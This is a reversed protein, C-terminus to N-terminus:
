KAESEPHHHNTSRVARQVIRYTVSGAAIARGSDRGAVTISSVYVGDSDWSTIAEALVDEGRTGVDFCLHMGITAARRAPDFGDISWAAAGGACDVLAAIAGEHITGDDGLIADALPLLSVAHGRGLQASAVALRRTFPSGSKRKVFSEAPVPTVKASPRTTADHASASSRNTGRRTGSTAGGSRHAIMGRAIPRDASSVLVDVFTIDRGRRLVRAEAVVDERVAPALYHVTFDITSAGARRAPETGAAAVTAAAVDILAAIVGGHLSGNRNANDDRYPLEIRAHEATATAVRVGITDLFPAGDPREVQSSSSRQM